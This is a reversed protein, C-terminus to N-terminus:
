ENRTAVASPEGGGDGAGGSDHDDGAGEAVEVAVTSTTEKSPPAPCQDEDWEWPKVPGITLISKLFASESVRLRPDNPELHATKKPDEGDRWKLVGDIIKFVGTELRTRAENKGAMVAGRREHLDKAMEYEALKAEFARQAKKKRGREEEMWAELRLFNENDIKEQQVDARIAEVRKKETAARKKVARNAEFVEM